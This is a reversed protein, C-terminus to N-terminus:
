PYRYKRLLDGAGSNRMADALWRPNRDIETELGGALNVRESSAGITGTDTTAAAYYESLRRFAEMVEAPAFTSEGSDGAVGSFRYPGTAPLFWGGLPSAQLEVTEYEQAGQSWVEITEVDFPTIPPTWEGCGEVIFEIDRASWRQSVYSELRRWVVSSDVGPTVPLSTYWFPNQNPTSETIKLTQTM